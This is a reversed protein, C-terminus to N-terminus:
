VMEKKEASEEKQVAADKQPSTQKVFREGSFGAKAVAKIVDEDSDSGAFSLESAAFNVYAEESGPLKKVAREIAAACAACHMGQITFIRKEMM